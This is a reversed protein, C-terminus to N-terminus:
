FSKIKSNRIETVKSERGVELCWTKFIRNELIARFNHITREVKNGSMCTLGKIQRNQQKRRKEQRKEGTVDKGSGVKRNWNM